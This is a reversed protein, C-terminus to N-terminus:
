RWFPYATTGLAMEEEKHSFAIWYISLIFSIDPKVDAM